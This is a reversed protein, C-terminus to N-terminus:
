PNRGATYARPLIDSPRVNQNTVSQQYLGAKFFLLAVAQARM